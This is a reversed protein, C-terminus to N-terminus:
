NNIESDLISSSESMRSNQDDLKGRLQELESKSSKVQESTKREVNILKEELVAKERELQTIHTSTEHQLQKLSVRKENYKKEYRDKDEQMKNVRDTVDQGHEDKMSKIKEEFSSSGDTIQKM